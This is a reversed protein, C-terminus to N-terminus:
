ANERNWIAEPHKSILEEEVCNRMSEPTIELWAIKIKGGAQVHDIVKSLKAGTKEHKKFLHNTLRQRSLKRTSKGIYRLVYNESDKDACFIAYINAAGSVSQFLIKNAQILADSEWPSIKDNPYCVEKQNREDNLHKDVDGVFVNLENQFPVQM